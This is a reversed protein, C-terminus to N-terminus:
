PPFCKDKGNAIGGSFRQKATGSVTLGHCKVIAVNGIAALEIKEAQM